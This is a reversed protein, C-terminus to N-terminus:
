LDARGAQRGPRIPCWAALDELHIARRQYRKRPAAARSGASSVGPWSWNSRHDSAASATRNASRLEGRQKTGSIM